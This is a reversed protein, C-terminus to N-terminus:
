PGFMLFPESLQHKQLDKICTKSYLGNQFSHFLKISVLSMKKCVVDLTSEMNKVLKESCKEWQEEKPNLEDSYKMQFGTVANHM